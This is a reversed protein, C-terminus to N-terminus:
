VIFLPNISQDYGSNYPRLEYERLTYTSTSCPLLLLYIVTLGVLICSTYLAFRSLPFNTLDIDAGIVGVLIPQVLHWLVHAWNRLPTTKLPCDINILSFVVLCRSRAVLSALNPVPASSFKGWRAHVSRRLQTGRARRMCVRLEPRTHM